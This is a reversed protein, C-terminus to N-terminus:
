SQPAIKQFFHQYHKPIKKTNYLDGKDSKDSKDSETKGSLKSSNLSLGSKNNITGSRPSKSKLENTKGIVPSTQYNVNYLKNNRNEVSINRSLRESKSQIYTM